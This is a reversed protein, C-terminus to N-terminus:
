IYYAEALKPNIKIAKSLYKLTQPNEKNFLHQGIIFPIIYSNPCQSILKDYVKILENEDKINNILKQNLTADDPNKIIESVLQNNNQALTQTFVIIFFLTIIKKMKNNM